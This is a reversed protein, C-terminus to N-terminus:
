WIKGSTVQMSHCQLMCFKAYLLIDGHQFGSNAVECQPMMLQNLPDKWCRLLMLAYAVTPGEGERSHMRDLMALALKSFRYAQDINGLSAETVGYIVFVYSSYQSLGNELTLETALLTSFVAREKGDKM